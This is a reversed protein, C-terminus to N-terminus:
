KFKRVFKSWFTFSQVFLDNKFTEGTEIYLDDVKLAQHSHGKIKSVNLRVEKNFIEFYFDYEMNEKLFKKWDLSFANPATKEFLIPERTLRDKLFFTMSENAEMDMRLSIGTEDINFEEIVFDLGAKISITGNKTEHLFLFAPETRFSPIFDDIFLDELKFPHNYVEFYWDYTTDKLEFQDWALEYKKPAVKELDFTQGTKTDKIFFKFVKPEFKGTSVMLKKRTIKPTDVPTLYATRFSLNDYITKYMEIFSHDKKVMKAQFSEPNEVCVRVKHNFIKYSLDFVTNKKMLHRIKCEFHNAVEQDFTFNRKTNRDSIYFELMSSANHNTVVQIKDTTLSINIIELKPSVGISIHGNKSVYSAILRNKEEILRNRYGKVQDKKIKHKNGSIEYFLDYLMEPETIFDWSIEFVGDILKAVPFPAKLSKEGVMFSVSPYLHHDIEIQIGQETVQIADIQVINSVVSLNNKGTFRLQFTNTGNNGEQNVFATVMEKTVRFKDIKKDHNFVLYIDYITDESLTDLALEGSFQNGEAKTLDSSRKDAFSKRSQLEISVSQISFVQPLTIGEIHLSQEKNELKGIKIFQPELVKIEFLNDPIDLEPHRFLKINWYYKGNEEIVDGTPSEELLQLLEAIQDHQIMYIYLNELITLENQHIGEVLAFLDKVEKLYVERFEPSGVMGKIPLLLRYLNRIFFANTLRPDGYENFYQLQYRYSQIRDEFNSLNRKEQSLSPADNPGRKRWLYVVEPIIAIKKAHLFAKHVMPRDSYIMGEPLFCEHELLVERRFLKNWYFVDYFLDLYEYISSIVREKQWVCKEKRALFEREVGGMLLNGKGIVIDANTEEAKSLLKEYADLPVVDDSDVLAIYKGTAIKIGANCAAAVGQNEQHIVKIHPHNKAYEEIIEPSRDTSGDNVIIIESPQITQRIISALCEKLYPETNYVTVVVSLSYELEIM